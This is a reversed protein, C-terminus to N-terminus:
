RNCLVGAPVTVFHDFVHSALNKPIRGLRIGREVCKCALSCTKAKRTNAMFPAGCCTCTVIIVRHVAAAQSCDRSCFRGDAANSHPRFSKGCHECDRAHVTRRALQSCKDTCYRQDHVRPRFPDGCQPCNRTELKRSAAHGCEKSCYRADSKVPHFATGCHGCERPPLKSAEVKCTISCYVGADSTPRFTKGCCECERAPRQARRIVDRASEYARSERKVSM